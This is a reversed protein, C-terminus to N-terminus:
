SNAGPKADPLPPPKRLHQFEPSSGSGLLDADGEPSDRDEESGPDEGQVHPGVSEVTDTKPVIVQGGGVGPTVPQIIDDPTPTQDRERM